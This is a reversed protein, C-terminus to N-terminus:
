AALSMRFIPALTCTCTVLVHRTHSWSECSALHLIQGWIFDLSSGWVNIPSLASCWHSSIAFCDVSTVAQTGTKIIRRALLMYPSIQITVNTNAKITPHCVQGSSPPSRNKKQRRKEFRAQPYYLRHRIKEGRTKKEFQGSSYSSLPPPPLLYHIRGEACGPQGRPQRSKM